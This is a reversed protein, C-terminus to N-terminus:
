ATACNSWYGYPNPAHGFMEDYAANGEEISSFWHWNTTNTKRVNRTDALIGFCDCHTVRFYRPSESRVVGRRVLEGKQDLIFFVQGVRSDLNLSELIRALTSQPVPTPTGNGPPIIPTDQHNTVAPPNNM